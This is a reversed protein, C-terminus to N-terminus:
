HNIQQIFFLVKKSAKTQYKESKTSFLVFRLTFYIAFLSRAGETKALGIVPDTGFRGGM